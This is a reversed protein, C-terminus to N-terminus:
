ALPLPLQLWAPRDSPEVAVVWKVWWPGRRGPVIMRVPAGHGARLPRGGYGVALHVRDLDGRDVYRDYGTASRVRVSRGAVDPLLEGLPVADWTQESWWGGTCDLTAIVPRAMAWMGDIPVPVGDVVLRWAAATTDAPAVDDIWSVTPMAAPDGSGVEHSGSGRRDGGSWGFARAAVEQAGYVTVAAAAAVGTGVVARRDLDARRPPVPRTLLHWVFFPILVAALLVHTWLATWAGVGFWWGTAHLVGLAATAVVLGGFIASVWRTSRRRRFGTAVSGRLKAPALVLLMLGVVAHGFTLWRSWRDGVMWSAAGTALAAMVLVELLLNVQRATLRRM